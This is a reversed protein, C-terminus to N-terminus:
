GHLWKWEQVCCFVRSEFRSSRKLKIDFWTADIELFIHQKPDFCFCCSLKIYGQYCSTFRTKGWQAKQWNFLFHCSCDNFMLPGLSVTCIHVHQEQHKLIFYVLVCVPFHWVSSSVSLRVMSCKEEGRGRNAVRQCLWLMLLFLGGFSMM